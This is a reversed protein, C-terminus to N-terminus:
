IAFDGIDALPLMAPEVFHQPHAGDTLMRSAQRIAAPGFRAGSRNTTGLDLPIGAIAIQAGRDHAAVGLFTPPM